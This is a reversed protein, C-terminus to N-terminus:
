DSVPYYYPMDFREEEPIEWAGNDDMVKSCQESILGDESRKVYYFINDNIGRIYIRDIPYNLEQTATTEDSFKFEISTIKVSSYDVTYTGNIIVDSFELYYGASYKSAYFKWYDFKEPDTSEGPKLILDNIYKTTAKEIGEDNYISFNITMSEITKDSVNKFNYYFSIISIDNSLGYLGVETNSVEIYASSSDEVSTKQGLYKVYKPVIVIAAVIAFLFVVILCGIPKKSKKKTNEKSNGTDASTRLVSVEAGCEPCFKSEGADKGCNPCFM